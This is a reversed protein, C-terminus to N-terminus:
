AYLFVNLNEILTTPQFDFKGDLTFDHRIANAVKMMTQLQTKFHVRFDRM